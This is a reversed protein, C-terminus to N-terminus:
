SIFNLLHPIFVFGGVLAATIAAILVAAAALDKVRGIKYNYDPCVIDALNEIATNVTEAFIVWGISFSILLWETSNIHCLVGLFVAILGLLLHIRANIEESFLIILGRLAHRLSQLRGSITFSSTLKKTNM